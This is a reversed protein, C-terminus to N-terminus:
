SWWGNIKIEYPAWKVMNRQNYSLSKDKGFCDWLDLDTKYSLDLDKSNNQFLFVQQGKKASNCLFSKCIQFLKLFILQWRIVSYICYAIKRQCTPVEETTYGAAINAGCTAMLPTGTASNLTSSVSAVDPNPHTQVELTWKWTVTIVRILM